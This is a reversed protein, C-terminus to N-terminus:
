DRYLIEPLSIKTEGVQYQKLPWEGSHTLFEGGAPGSLISDETNVGTITIFWNCAQNQKIIASPDFCLSSDNPIYGTIGGQFHNLWEDRYGLEAYLGKQMEFIDSFKSGPTTHAICNAAITSAAEFKKVTENDLDHSFCVSRTIPVHLGYKRPCLVLIVYSGIKKDSPIPHRYKFNREDSGVLVVTSVFGKVAFASVLRGEVEKETMGPRIQDVVLRLLIESERGIERYREIEWQTLPYHLKYFEQNNWTAGELPIDSLTRKGKILDQVIEERSKGNWRTSILDFGLGTLEEDYNRQGDMTYAVLTKSDLTLVVLADAGESTILVRSKGGCSIWSFNSQTGIVIADWRSAEMYDLVRRYKTEFEIKKNVDTM